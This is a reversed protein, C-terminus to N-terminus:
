QEIVGIESLARLYELVLELPIPGYIASVMDRIEQATRRGDVFNLVEYAYESGSGRLGQFRLLGLSRVRDEGLRDSLYDYGFATLPGKILSTRRYVIRAGQPPPPPPTVNGVLEALATLFSEAKAKVEP